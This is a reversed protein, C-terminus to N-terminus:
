RVRTPVSTAPQEPAGYYDPALRSMRDEDGIAPTIFAYVGYEFRGHKEYVVWVDRVRWRRGDNGVIGQDVQPPIWAYEDQWGDQPDPTEFSVVFRPEPRSEIMDGIRAHM